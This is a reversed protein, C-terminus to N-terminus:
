ESWGRDALYTRWLRDALSPPDDLLRSLMPGPGIGSDAQHVLLGASQALQRLFTWRAEWEWGGPEESWARVDHELNGGGRTLASVLAFLSFAPDSARREAPPLAGAPPAGPA